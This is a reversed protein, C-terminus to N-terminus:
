TAGGQESVTEPSSDRGLPEVKLRVGDSSVVRVREGKTISGSVPEASWTEAGVRVIGGPGLASEVIGESGVINDLSLHSPARQAKLAAPIVFIFFAITALAIPAIAWPSVGEENAALPDILLYGGLVLCTVAGVAAFSIGPYKAELLFFGVSALLLIVGGLRVPLTGFGIFASVLALVGAVGPVSIGPSVLELGILMLGAYFLVFVVTPSLWEELVMGNQWAQQTLPPPLESEGHEVGARKDLPSGERAHPDPHDSEPPHARVHRATQQPGPVFDHRV